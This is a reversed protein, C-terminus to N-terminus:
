AEKPIKYAKDLTGINKNLLPKSIRLILSEVHKPYDGWEAAGVDYASVFRVVEKRTEPPQRVGKPFTITVPRNLASTMEALLQTAKGLYVLNGLSDYFAYIGPDATHEGLIKKLQTQLPSTHDFRAYEAIVRFEPVFACQLFYQLTAKQPTSAGSSWANIRAISYGTIFAARKAEGRFYEKIVFALIDSRSTM